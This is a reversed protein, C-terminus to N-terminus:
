EYKLSLTNVATLLSTFNTLQTHSLSVMQWYFICTYSVWLPVKKTSFPIYSCHRIWPLPGSPGGGKNKLWFLAWLPSFFKKLSRAGGKDWPHGGRIQDVVQLLTSNYPNSRLMSGGRIFSKLNTSYKSTDYSYCYHMLQKTISVYIM